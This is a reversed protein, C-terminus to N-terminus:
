LDKTRNEDQTPCKLCIAGSIDWNKAFAKFIDTLSSLSLRMGKWGDTFWASWCKLWSNVLVGKKLWGRRNIARFSFLFFVLRSLLDRWYFFFLFLFFSLVCCYSKRFNAPTPAIFLERKSCTDRSCTERQGNFANWLPVTSRCLWMANVKMNHKPDM